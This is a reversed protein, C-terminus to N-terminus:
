CIVGPPYREDRAMLTSILISPISQRLGNSQRLLMERYEHGCQPRNQLDFLRGLLLMFGFWLRLRYVNSSGQFHSSALFGKSLFHLVCSSIYKLHVLAITKNVFKKKRFDSWWLLLMYGKRTLCLSWFEILPWLYVLYLNSDVFYVYIPFTRQACM